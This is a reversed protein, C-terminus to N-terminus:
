LGATRPIPRRALHGRAQEIVLDMALWLLLALAVLRWWAQVAAVAYGLFPVVARVEGVDGDPRALWPDAADNADGRTAFVVRGDRVDSAIVRHTVVRDPLSFTIVDGVRVAAPTVAEAVILSGVDILPAMSGSTVVYASYGASRFLVIALAAGALALPLRM